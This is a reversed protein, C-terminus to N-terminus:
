ILDSYDLKSDEEMAKKLQRGVVVSRHMPSIGNGPRKMLLDEEELIHGAELTRVLHISKRAVILNKKESKSPLKVGKGLAQEINRIAVVMAKLESPELSARHDPGEMNRDLTFHKEICVAGMAVAAIPVEIGLTHDSYGVKVKFASGITNMAKLNVDQMPTPYETNCHLVTINEQPVGKEYLVTLAAEIDGLNSMGTSLIIPKQISAIKELYPLNTIEGSPIKFVDIDLETLLDISDQDFATSLFKINKQQCYSILTEHTSRDLELKKLMTYQSDDKDESMNSVQYAAKKASRSVLKEAKFTQFKVYDVGAEAAADILQKAIEISGNHNVGAEAIILTKSM